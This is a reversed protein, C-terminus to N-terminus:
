DAILAGARALAADVDDDDWIEARDVRGEVVRMLFAGSSTSQLGDIESSTQEETSLVLMGDGLRHVAVSSAVGPGRTERRTEFMRFFGARDLEGFNGLRRHDVFVHDAATLEDLREGDLGVYAGYQENAIRYTEADEPDLMAMWREDLEALAEALRDTEFNTEVLVRGETDFEALVLM